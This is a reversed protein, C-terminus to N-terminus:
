ISLLAIFHVALSSTAQRSNFSRGSSSFLLWFFPVYVSAPSTQCISKDIPVHQSLTPCLFLWFACIVEYVRVFFSSKCKKSEQHRWLQNWSSFLAESEENIKREDGKNRSIWKGTNVQVNYIIHLAIEETYNVRMLLKRSLLRKRSENVDFRGIPFGLLHM